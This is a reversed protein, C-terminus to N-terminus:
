LEASYAWAGFQQRTGIIGKRGPSSEVFVPLGDGLRCNQCGSVDLVVTHSHSTGLKGRGGGAVFQPRARKTKKGGLRWPCDKEALHM